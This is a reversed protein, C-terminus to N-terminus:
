RPLFQWKYWMQFTKEKSIIHFKYSFIARPFVTVSIYPNILKNYFCLSIFLFVDLDFVPTQYLLEFNMRWCHRMKHVIRWCKTKRIHKSESLDIPSSKHKKNLLELIWWFGSNIVSLPKSLKVTSWKMDEIYKCMEFIM